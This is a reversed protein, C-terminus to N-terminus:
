VLDRIGNGTPDPAERRGAGILQAEPGQLAALGVRDFARIMHVMMGVAGVAEARDEHAEVVRLLVGDFDVQVMSGPALSAFTTQPRIPLRDAGGVAPGRGAAGTAGSWSSWAPKWGAAASRRGETDLRIPVSCMEGIRDITPEVAELPTHSLNVRFLDVGREALREMVERKLSSPGLTCLIQLKL